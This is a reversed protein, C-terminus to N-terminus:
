SVHSHLGLQRDEALQLGLFAMTSDLNLPRVVLSALPMVGVRLGLDFSSQKLEVALCLFCM